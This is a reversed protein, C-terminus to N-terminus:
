STQARKQEMTEGLEALAESTKMIIPGRGEKYEKMM